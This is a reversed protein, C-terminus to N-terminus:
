LKCMSTLLMFKNTCSQQGNQSLVFYLLLQLFLMILSLCFVSFYCIRGLVRLLLMDFVFSTASFIKCIKGGIKSKCLVCM